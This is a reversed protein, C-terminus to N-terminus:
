LLPRLVHVLCMLGFITEWAHVAYMDSVVHNIDVCKAIICSVHSVLELGLVVLIVMGVAVVEAVQVVLVVGCRVMGVGAGSGGRAGSFTSSGRGRGVSRGVQRGVAIPNGLREMVPTQARLTARWAADLKMEPAMRLTIGLVTFLSAIRFVRAARRVSRRLKKSEHSLTRRRSQSMKSRFYEKAKYVIDELILASILMIAKAKILQKLGKDSVNFRARYAPQVVQMSELSDIVSWHCKEVRCKQWKPPASQTARRAAKKAKRRERRYRKKRLRTTRSDSSSSASLSESSDIDSDSSISSSDEGDSGSSEVVTEEVTQQQEQRSQRRRKRKKSKIRDSVQEVQAAVARATGLSVGAGPL